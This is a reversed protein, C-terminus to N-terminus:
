YQKTYIENSYMYIMHKCYPLFWLTEHYCETACEGCALRQFESLAETVSHLGALQMLVQIIFSLCRTACFECYHNYGFFKVSFGECLISKKVQWPRKYILSFQDLIPKMISDDFLLFSVLPLNLRKAVLRLHNSLLKCKLATQQEVKMFTQKLTGAM